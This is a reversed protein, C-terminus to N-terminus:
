SQQFWPHRLAQSATPRDQEHYGLLRRLLDLAEASWAQTPQPATPVPPVGPAAGAAPAPLSSLVRAEMHAALRGQRVAEFWERENAEQAAPDEALAFPPCGTLLCVGLVGLQWMDLCMGCYERPPLDNRGAYSNLTGSIQPSRYIVKGLPHVPVTRPKFRRSPTAVPPPPPSLVAPGSGATSTTDMSNARSHVTASLDALAQESGDMCGSVSECTTATDVTMSSHNLASNHLSSSDRTMREHVGVHGMDILVMQLQQFDADTLGGGSRSRYRALLEASHALSQVLVNETSIDQHALGREHLLDLAQLMHLMVRKTAAESHRVWDRPKNPQRQEGRRMYSDLSGYPTYKTIIFLNDCSLAVDRHGLFRAALTNVVNGADSSSSSSSGGGGPVQAGNLVERVSQEIFEMTEIENMLHENRGKVRERDFHPTLDKSTVPAGPGAAADHHILPMPQFESGDPMHWRTDAGPFHDNGHRVVKVAVEEFGRLFSFEAASGATGSNSRTTCHSAPLVPLRYGKYVEGYLPPWLNFGARQHDMGPPLEVAGLVNVAGDAGARVMALVMSAAIPVAGAAPNNSVPPYVPHAHLLQLRFPEGSSFGFCLGSIRDCHRICHRVGSVLVSDPYAGLLGAATPINRKLYEKRFVLVPHEATRSVRHFKGSGADRQLLHCMFQTAIDLEYCHTRVAAPQTLVVRRVVTPCLAGAANKTPLEVGCLHLELGSIPVAMQSQAFCQPSFPSLRRTLLRPLKSFYVPVVKPLDEDTSNTQLGNLQRKSSLESLKMNGLREAARDARNFLSDLEKYHDDSQDCGLEDGRENDGDDVDMDSDDDFRQGKPVLSQDPDLQDTFMGAHARTRKGDGYKPEGM